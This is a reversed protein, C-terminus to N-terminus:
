QPRRGKRNIGVNVPNAPTNSQAGLTHRYFLGVDVQCRQECRLLVPRAVEVEDAQAPLDAVRALGVARGAGHLIQAVIEVHRALLWGFGPKAPM